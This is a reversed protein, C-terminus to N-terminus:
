SVRSLSKACFVRLQNSLMGLETSLRDCTARADRLNGARGMEELRLADDAAERADFNRVLGCLRHAAFALSTGDDQVIATEIQQILLPRDREFFDILKRVLEADGEMRALLAEGNLTFDIGNASPVTACGTTLKGIVELLKQPDIPKALHTNMGAALCRERDDDATHGTLAVIPIPPANCQRECDRIAATAHFGDLGPMEVDMLIVDFPEKQWTAIAERGNSAVSVTYGHRELIRSVVLQNDHTDDALLIRPKRSGDSM